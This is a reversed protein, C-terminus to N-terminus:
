TCYIVIEKDRPIEKLRTGVESSPIRVAGKIKTDSSEYSGQSRSDIVFVPQHKAIREKLEEVTIREAEQPEEPKIVTDAPLYAPKTAEKQTATSKAKTSKKKTSQKSKSQGASAAIALALMLALAIFTRQKKFVM